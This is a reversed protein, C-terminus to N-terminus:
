AWARLNRADATPSSTSVSSVAVTASKAPRALSATKAAGTPLVFTREDAQNFDQGHGRSPHRQQEFSFANQSSSQGSSQDRQEFSTEGFKIGKDAMRPAQHDWERSLAQQLETTQSVFKAHVVGDHWRLHVRLTEDNSTQLRLDLQNRGSQQAREAAEITERVAAAATSRVEVPEHALRGQANATSAANPLAAAVPESTDLPTDASTPLVTAHASM